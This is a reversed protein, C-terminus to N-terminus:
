DRGGSATAAVPPEPRWGVASLLVLATPVGFAWTVLTVQEAGVLLLPVFVAGTAAGLDRANALWGLQRLREGTSSGAATAPVLTTVASAAVMALFAGVLLATHWWPGLAMLGLGLATVLGNWRVTRSTGFRDGLWGALPAVVVQVVKRAALLGAGTQAAALPSWGVAMLALVIGAMMVGDVGFAVSAALGGPGWPAALRRAVGVGGPAPQLTAVAAPLRGRAPAPPLAWALVIAFATLGALALFLTRVGLPALLAAAAVLLLAPALHQLATASGLRRAAHRREVIAYGQVCLRLTAFAAGWAVRAALLWALGPAFAYAATSAVAVLSGALSGHRLGVSALWRAALPNLALRAFRNVSLVAAVGAAGLGYTAATAPLVAYLVADGVLALTLAGAALLHPPFARVVAVLTSM